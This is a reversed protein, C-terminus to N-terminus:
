GECVNSHAPATQRVQRQQSCCHVRMHDDQHTDQAVTCATNPAHPTAPRPLLRCVAHQVATPASRHPRAHTTVQQIYISATPEATLGACPTMVRRMLNQM